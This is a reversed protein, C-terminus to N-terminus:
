SNSFSTMCRAERGGWTGRSVSPSSTNGTQFATLAERRSDDGFPRDILRDVHEGYENEALLTLEFMRALVFSGPRAGDRETSRNTRGVATCRGGESVARPDPRDVARTRSGPEGTANLADLVLINTTGKGSRCAGTRRAPLVRGDSEEEIYGNGGILEMAESVGRGGRPKGTVAKRSRAHPHAPLRDDGRSCPRRHDRVDLLMAGAHEAELDM